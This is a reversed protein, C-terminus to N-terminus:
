SSPPAAATGEGGELGRRHGDLTALLSQGSVHSLLGLLAYSPGSLLGIIESQLQRLEPLTAIQKVREQNAVSDEIVASLLQLRTPKKVAAPNAAAAAPRAGPRAAAAATAKAAAERRANPQESAKGVIRLAAALTPPHLPAPLTLMCLEGRFIKGDLGLQPQTAAHQFEPLRRLLPPMLGSRVFTLAPRADPDDTAAGPVAPLAKLAARISTLEDTALESPRLFLAVSSRTLLRAYVRM